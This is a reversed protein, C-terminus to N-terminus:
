GGRHFLKKILRFPAGIVKKARSGLPKSEALFVGEADGYGESQVVTTTRYTTMTGSCGSSRVAYAGSCGARPQRVVYVTAPAVMTGTCGNTRPAPEQVAKSEQVPPVPPPPEPNPQVYWYGSAILIPILAKM